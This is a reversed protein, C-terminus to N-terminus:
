SIFERTLGHKFTPKRTVEPSLGFIFNGFKNNTLINKRAAPRRTVGFRANQIVSKFKTKHLLSPGKLGYLLFSKFDAAQKPM